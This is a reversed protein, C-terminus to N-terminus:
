FIFLDVSVGCLMTPPSFLTPVININATFIVACFVNISQKRETETSNFQMGFQLPEKPDSFSKEICHSLFPEWQLKIFDLM